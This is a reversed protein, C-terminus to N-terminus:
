KGVILFSSCLLLYLWSPSSKSLFDDATILQGPHETNYAEVRLNCKSNLVLVPLGFKLEMPESSGGFHISILMLWFSFLCCSMRAGEMAWVSTVQCPVWPFVCQLYLLLVNAFKLWSSLITVSMRAAPFFSCLAIASYASCIVLRSLLQRAVQYQEGARQQPSWGYVQIERRRWECTVRRFGRGGVEGCGASM